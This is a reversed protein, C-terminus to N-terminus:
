RIKLKLTQQTKLVDGQDEEVDSGHHRDQLAHDQLQLVTGEGEKFTKIITLIIKDIRMLFHQSLSQACNEASRSKMRQQLKM